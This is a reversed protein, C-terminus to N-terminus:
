NPATAPFMGHPLNSPHGSSRTSLPPSMVTYKLLQDFMFLSL